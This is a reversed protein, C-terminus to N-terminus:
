GLLGRGIAWEMREHGWFRRGDATVLMPVGFLGREAYNREIRETLKRRLAEDRSAALVEAPDLGVAGATDALVEESAVDRGRAWREEFLALGFESGRGEGDAHVFAAHPISWDPDGVPPRGLELDYAECLRIVDEIIYRVKAPVLNGFNKFSPLPFLPVWRVEQGPPLMPLVRCAAIRAYPSRFSFVFELPASM